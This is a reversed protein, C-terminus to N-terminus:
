ILILRCMILIQSVKNLTPPYQFNKCIEIMSTQMIHSVPKGGWGNRTEIYCYCRLFTYIIGCSPEREYSNLSTMSTQMKNLSIFKLLICKEQLFEMCPCENNFLFIIFCLCYEHQFDCEM